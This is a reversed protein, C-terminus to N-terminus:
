RTSILSRYFCFLQSKKYMVKSTLSLINSLSLFFFRFSFEQAIGSLHHWFFVVCVFFYIECSQIEIRSLKLLKKCAVVVVVLNFFIGSLTSRSLNVSSLFIIFPFTIHAMSKKICQIILALTAYFFTLSFQSHLVYFFYSFINTQIHFPSHHHNQM